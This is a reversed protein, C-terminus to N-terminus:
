KSPNRKLISGMLGEHSTPNRKHLYYRAWQLYFPVGNLLSDQMPLM